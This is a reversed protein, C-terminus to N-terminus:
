EEMWEKTGPKGTQGCACEGNAYYVHKHLGCMSGDDLSETCHWGGRSFEGAKHVHEGPAPVYEVYREVQVRKPELVPRDRDIILKAAGALASGAIVVLAVAEIDM